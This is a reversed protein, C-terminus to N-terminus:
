TGATTRFGATMSKRAIATLRFTAATKHASHSACRRPGGTATEIVKGHLWAKHAEIVEIRRGKGVAELERGPVVRSLEFQYTHNARADRLSLTANSAATVELFLKRADKPPAERGGIGADPATLWTAPNFESLSYTRAVM